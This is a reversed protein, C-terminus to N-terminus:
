FTRYDWLSLGPLVHHVSNQVFIRTFRRLDCTVRASDQAVAETLRVLHSELACDVQYGFGVTGRLIEDRIPKPGYTRLVIEEAFLAAHSRRRACWVAPDDIREVARGVESM